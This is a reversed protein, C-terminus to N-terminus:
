NMNAHLLFPDAGVVRAINARLELFESELRKNQMPSRGPCLFRVLVVRKDHRCFILRKQIADHEIPPSAGATQKPAFHSVIPFVFGSMMTKEPVEATPRMGSQGSPFFIKLFARQQLSVSRRGRFRFMFFAPFMLEETGKM